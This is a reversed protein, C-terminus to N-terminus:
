SCFSDQSWSTNPSDRRTSDVHAKEGLVPVALSETSATGAEQAQPAKSRVFNPAHTLSDIVKEYWIIDYSPIIIVKTNQIEPMLVGSIIIYKDYSIM